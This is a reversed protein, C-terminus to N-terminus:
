DKGLEELFPTTKLPYGYCSLYDARCTDTSILLVNRIKGPAFQRRPFFLAAYMAIALLLVVTIAFGHSLIRAFLNMM